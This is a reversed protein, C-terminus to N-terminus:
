QWVDESPLPGLREVLRALLEERVQRCAAEDSWDRQNEPDTEMDFLEICVEGSQIPKWRDTRIM